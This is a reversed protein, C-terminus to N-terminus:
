GVFRAFYEDVMDQMVAREDKSLSKFPSGMDKLTGSKVANSTVGLKALTGEFDVTNFIVGISGVVSTPQAYIKDSALSVYYAGSAAVEQTSAVVPKHTRERFRKVIGYMTDSGTVTGGPSNVRLVVAKVQEDAAARDMQQSFRSVPNETAQLLGGSQANALMGEVEILAGKPGSGGKGAKLTQEELRNSNAVPTVLFSPAGCGTVLLALCMM